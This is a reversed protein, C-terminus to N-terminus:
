ALVPGARIVARDAPSLGLLAAIHAEVHIRRADATHEHRNGLHSTRAADAANNEAIIRVVRQQIAASKVATTRPVPLHEIFKKRHSHDGSHFAGTDAVGEPESYRVMGKEFLHDPGPADVKPHVM